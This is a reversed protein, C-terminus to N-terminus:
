MNKNRTVNLNPAYVKKATGRQTKLQGSGGLTLDRPIAFSTLKLSNNMVENTNSEKKINVSSVTSKRNETSM